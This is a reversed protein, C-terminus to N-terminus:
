ALTRWDEDELEAKETDKNICVVKREVAEEEWQEKAGM